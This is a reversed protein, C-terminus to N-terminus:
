SMRQSIEGRPGDNKDGSVHILTYVGESSSIKVRQEEGVKPLKCNKCLLVEAEHPKSSFSALAAAKYGAPLDIVLVCRDKGSYDLAVALSTSASSYGQDVYVGMAITQDAVKRSIGRYLRARKNTGTKYKFLEELNVDTDHQLATLEETTGSKRLATNMVSFTGKWGDKTYERVAAMQQVTLEDRIATAQIADDGCARGNTKPFGDYHLLSVAGEVQKLFGNLELLRRTYKLRARADGTEPRALLQRLEAAWRKLMLLEYEVERM